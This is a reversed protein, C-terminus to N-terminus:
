DRFFIRLIHIRLIQFLGHLFAQHNADFLRRGCAALTRSGFGASFGGRGFGILVLQEVFWLLVIASILALRTFCSRSRVPAPIISHLLARFSALPSIPSASTTSRLRPMADAPLFADRAVRCPNIPVYM